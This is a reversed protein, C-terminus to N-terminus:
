IKGDIGGRKVIDISNKYAMYKGHAIAGGKVNHQDYNAINMEKILEKEVKEVDYATPQTMIEACVCDYLNSYEYNNESSCEDSLRKFYEMLVDADVLRGM